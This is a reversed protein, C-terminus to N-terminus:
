PACRESLSGRPARAAWRRASRADQQTLSAAVFTEAVEPAVRFAGEAVVLVAADRRVWREIFVRRAITNAELWAMSEPDGTTFVQAAEVLVQEYWDEAISLPLRSPPPTPESLAAWRADGDVTPLATYTCGHVTSHTSESVMADDRTAKACASLASASLILATTYRLIRRM